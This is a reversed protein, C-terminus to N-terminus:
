NLQLEVWGGFEALAQVGAAGLALASVGVEGRCATAVFLVDLVLLLGLFLGVLSGSRPAQSDGFLLDSGSRGLLTKLPTAERGEQKACFPKDVHLM